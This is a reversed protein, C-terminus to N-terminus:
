VRCTLIRQESLQVKLRWNLLDIPTVRKEVVVLEPPDVSDAKSPGETVRVAAPWFITETNELCGFNMVVM